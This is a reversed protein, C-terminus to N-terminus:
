QVPKAEPFSWSGDLIESGPRYMRVTYNWGEMIPLCNVRGDKCGGLHVTMSGDENRAGTVSNVAYADLENPEFFGQANYLSISWFAEVPVDKPVEIVYESVPLNPDINVYFAEQEPLGGWGGATGIFHRVADVDKRAGFMRSADPTYPGLTLITAVLSRYGDEDYSPMNFPQSSNAEVAVQEQLANVVEIDGPNAADVLIRVWVSVFPTEFTEMDLKYTGGGSFVENIYHDQNVVMLTMYRDGSDPLTLKAGESIDVVATSYLTDRNMRITTQQDVPTPESIHLFRNVGGALSEYKGFEFDTAVRVFNDINVAIEEGNPSQDALTQYPTLCLACIAVMLLTKM